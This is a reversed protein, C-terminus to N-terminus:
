KKYACSTECSNFIFRLYVVIFRQDVVGLNAYVLYVELDVNKIVYEDSIKIHNKDAYIASTKTSLWRNKITRANSIKQIRLIDWCRLWRKIASYECSIKVHNKGAYTAGAVAM